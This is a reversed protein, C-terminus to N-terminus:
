SPNHEMSYTLLYTFHTGSKFIAVGADVRHESKSGDTLIQIKSTEKNNKTLINITEAPHHWYKVEMDRDFLAEEKTSGKTRHYFQFAKEIKLDIPTL